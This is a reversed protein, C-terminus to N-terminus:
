NIIILNSDKIVTIEGSNEQYGRVSINKGVLTSVEVGEKPQAFITFTKVEESTGNSTKQSATATLKMKGDVMEAKTVKLYSYLSKNYYDAYPTLSDFILYNNEKVVAVYDPNKQLPVYSLGSIQYSGNHLQVLGTMTYKTGVKLLKAVTSTSYGAYIMISYEEGEVIETARFTYTKSSDGSIEIETLTATIRVKAGSNNELNYYQEMNTVLEKVSLDTAENTFYPDDDKGHIHLSKSKAFDEAEKFYSYYKYKDTQLCKNASYGNEVVELNLNKFDENESTRYWVYGLYRVGYSDHSAPTTTAELVIETASELREATFMSAPKGWKEISGTSEPTDIGYFRITVMKGGVLKFNATDGDTTKTLTALGIGDEIFDKGAYAVNLSCTKTIKDYVGTDKDKNCSTVLLLSM